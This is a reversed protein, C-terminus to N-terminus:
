AARPRGLLRSELASSPLPREREGLAMDEVEEVLAAGVLGVLLVPRRGDKM